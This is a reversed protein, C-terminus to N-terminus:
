RRGGVNVNEAHGIVMQVPQSMASELRHEELLVRFRRTLRDMIKGLAEMGAYDRRDLAQGLAADALDMQCRCVSLARALTRRRAGTSDTSALAEALGRAHELLEAADGEVFATLAVQDLRPLGFRQPPPPTPEARV